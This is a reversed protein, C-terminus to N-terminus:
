ETCDSDRKEPCHFLEPAIEKTQRHIGLWVPTLGYQERTWGLRIRHKWVYAYAEHEDEGMLHRSEHLLVAAREVDDAPYAFFDSYITMIEFPFNTAAYANEKPVSANLWNDNGRYVTFNDLLAAETSFGKQRLVRVAARITAKEEINLPKASFVLSLYFGLIAAVCVCLCILARVMVISALSRRTALRSHGKALATECRVCLDATPYNALGCKPCKKNM